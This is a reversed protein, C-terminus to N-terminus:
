PRYFKSFDQNMDTEIGLIEPCAIPNVENMMEWWNPSEWWAGNIMENTARLFLEEASVYIREQDMLKITRLIM